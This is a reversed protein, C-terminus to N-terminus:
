LKIIRLYFSILIDRRLKEKNEQEHQKTFWNLLIVNYVGYIKSVSGVM